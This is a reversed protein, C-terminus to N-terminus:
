LKQYQDYLQNERSMVGFCSFNFYYFHTEVYVTITKYSKSILYLMNTTSKRKLGVTSQVAICIM